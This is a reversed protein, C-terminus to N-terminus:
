YAFQQRIIHIKWPPEYLPQYVPEHVLAQLLKYLFWTRCCTDHLIRKHYTFTNSTVHPVHFTFDPIKSRVGSDCIGSLCSMVAGVRCLLIIADSSFTWLYMCHSSFVERKNLAKRKSAVNCKIPTAIDEKDSESKEVDETNATDSLTQIRCDWGISVPSLGTMNVQTGLRVDYTVIMKLGKLGVHLFKWTDATHSTRRRHQQLCSDPGPRRPLAHSRRSPPPTPLRPSAGHRHLHLRRRAVIGGLPRMAEADGLHGGLALPGRRRGCLLLHDVAEVNVGVRGSTSGVRWGGVLGVGLFQQLDALRLGHGFQTSHTSTHAECHQVHVGADYPLPQPAALQILELLDDQFTLTVLEHALVRRVGLDSGEELCHRGDHHTYQHALLFWTNLISTKFTSTPSALRAYLVAPISPRPFRSIGLFVRLGADDESAFGAHSFGPSTGGPNSGREALHSALLRVVVGGRNPLQTCTSWIPIGCAFYGCKWLTAKFIFRRLEEGPMNLSFYLLKRHRVAGSGDALLTFGHHNCTTVFCLMRPPLTKGGACAFMSISCSRTDFSWSAPICCTSSFSRCAVLPLLRASQLSWDPTPRRWLTFLARTELGTRATKALRVPLFSTNLAPARLRTTRLWRSRDVEQRVTLSNACLSVRYTNSSAREGLRSNMGSDCQGSLCSVVNGILVVRCGWCQIVVAVSASPNARKGNGPRRLKKSCGSSPCCNLLCKM